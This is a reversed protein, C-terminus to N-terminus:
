SALSRVMGGVLAPSYAVSRVVGGFVEELGDKNFRKAVETLFAQLESEPDLLVRPDSTAPISYISPTSSLALLSPLLESAGLPKRCLRDSIILDYFYNEIVWKETTSVYNPRTVHCLYLHNGSRTTKGISLEIERFGTRLTFVFDRDPLTRSECKRDTRKKALPTTFETAEL